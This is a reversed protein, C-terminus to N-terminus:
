RRGGARAAGQRRLSLAFGGASGGQVASREGDPGYEYSKSARTGDEAVLRNRTDYRFTARQGREDTATVRNGATDYTYAVAATTQGGAAMHAIREVRGVACGFTYAASRATRTAAAPLGVRPTTTWRSLRAERRMSACSARSQTTPTAVHNTRCKGDHLRGREDYAYGITERWAPYEVRVLRGFTDYSSRISFAGDGAEALWGNADYRYRWTGVSTRRAALRGTADYEYAVRAGSASTREVLRGGPAYRLAVTGGYAPSYAFLIGQLTM